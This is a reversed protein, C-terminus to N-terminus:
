KDASLQNKYLFEGLGNRWAKNWFFAEAEDMAYPHLIVPQLFTKYYSVGLALHLARLSRLQEPTDKLSVPFTLLETLTYQEGAHEVVYEFRVTRRDDALQFHTYVFREQEM